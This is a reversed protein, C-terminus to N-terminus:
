MLTVYTNIINMTIILLLLHLSLWVLIFPQWMALIGSSVDELFSNNVVGVFDDLMINIFTHFVWDVFRWNGIKLVILCINFLIFHKVIMVILVLFM